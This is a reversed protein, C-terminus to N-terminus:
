PHAPCQMNLINLEGSSATGFHYWRGTANCESVDVTQQVTTSSAWCQWSMLGTTAYEICTTSYTESACGNTFVLHLCPSTHGGVTLQVLTPVECSDADGKACSLPAIKIPCAETKGSLDVCSPTSDADPVGAEPAQKTNVSVGCSALCVAAFPIFARGSTRKMLVDYSLANGRAGTRSSSRAIRGKALRM